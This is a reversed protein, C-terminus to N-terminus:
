TPILTLVLTMATSVGALSFSRSSSSFEFLECALCVPLSACCRALPVLYSASALTFCPLALCPLAIDKDRSM